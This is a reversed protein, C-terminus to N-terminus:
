GGDNKGFCSACATITQWLNKIISEDDVPNQFLLTSHDEVNSNNADILEVTPQVQSQRINETNTNDVVDRQRISLQQALRGPWYLSSMYWVGDIPFYACAGSIGEICLFLSFMGVIKNKVIVRGLVNLALIGKARIV